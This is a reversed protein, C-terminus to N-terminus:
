KARFYDKTRLLPVVRETAFVAPQVDGILAVVERKSVTNRFIRLRYERKAIDRVQIIMYPQAGQLSDSLVTNELYQDVTLLSVDDLFTNLRATDARVIGEVGFRENSYAVKFNSEPHGPFSAELEQFNRWNFGFVYKDRWGSEPLELIGSAYVRYGPIVVAYPEDGPLKFYAMTKQANGGAYFTRVAENGVYLTVKVGDAELAKSISDSVATAVRQKPGAQQLTAFLVDIMSRDADGTKNVKWKAGNYALDVLKGHTELTVRSVSKFDAVRFITADVAPAQGSQSYWVLVGTLSLMIVLSVLLQINKRRQM